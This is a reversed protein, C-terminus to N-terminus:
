ILVKLVIGAWILINTVMIQIIHQHNEKNQRQKKTAPGM